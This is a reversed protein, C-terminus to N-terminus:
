VITMFPNETNRTDTPQMDALNVVRTTSQTLPTRPTIPQTIGNSDTTSIINVNSAPQIGLPPITNYVTPMEVNQPVTQVVPQSPERKKWCFLYLAVLIGGIFMIPIIVDIAYIYYIADDDSSPSLPPPNIPFPPSPPPPSPPSPPPLSPPLPPPPPSPPPLSPPLPPPPLAPTAYSVSSYIMLLIFVINNLSFM